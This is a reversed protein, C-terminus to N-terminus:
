RHGTFEGCLPDTVRFINGNLSTMMNYKIDIGRSKYRSPKNRNHKVNLGMHKNVVAFYIIDIVRMFDENFNLYYTEHNKERGWYNVGPYASYRFLLLRIDKFSLADSAINFGVFNIQSNESYDTPPVQLSSQLYKFDTAPFRERCERHM